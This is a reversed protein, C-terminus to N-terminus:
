GLGGLRATGFDGFKSQQIGFAELITLFLDGTQKGEAVVHQGTKFAGGGRGGLLIPMNAQDHQNPDSVDSSNFAIVDDLLTRDGERVADLQGLLYAFQQVLFLDIADKAQKKQDDGLWHSVDHHAVKMGGIQFPLNSTAKGMMITVVRTADCQFAKVTLDCLLKARAGADLPMGAPKTGPTCMAAPGGGASAQEAQTIARELEGIGTLYEDLRLKDAAGLRGQLRKTDDLVADLLKQHLARRRKAAPDEATSTGGTPAPAGAAGGFLREFVIRPNTFNPLANGKSFSGRCDENACYDQRDDFQDTPSDIIGDGNGDTYPEFDPVVELGLPLSPYRVQAATKAAIVQDISTTVGAVINPTATLWAALGGAHSGINGDGIKLGSLVILKAKVAELPALTPPLAGLAGASGPRWRDRTSGNPHFWGIFRVPTTAAVARRPAFAELWPLAVAAGAGRLM